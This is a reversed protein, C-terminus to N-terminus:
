RRPRHPGSIDAETFTMGCWAPETAEFITCADAAMRELEVDDHRPDHHTLVLSRVGVRRALEAAQRHTSHGWGFHNPYESDNYQADFVLLDADACFDDFADFERTDMRALELDGSFVIKRGGVELAIATCGGPHGVEMWRYRVDAFTGTGVPDLAEGTARVQLAPGIPVPFLPPRHVQQIFEFPALNERPVGAVHLQWGPQYLGGFFPFGLIHDAHLHTLLLLTDRNDMEPSRGAEAFASGADIFIRGQPVVLELCTTLGGYLSNAPGGVSIGGRCGWIRFTWDALVQETM